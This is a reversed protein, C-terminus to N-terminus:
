RYMVANDEDTPIDERRSPRPEQGARSVRPRARRRVCGSVRQEIMQMLGALTLNAYWIRVPHVAMSPAVIQAILRGAHRDVRDGLGRAAIAADLLRALTTAGRQPRRVGPLRRRTDGDTRRIGRTLRGPRIATVWQGTGGTRGAGTM